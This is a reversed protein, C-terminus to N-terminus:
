VKWGGREHDVGIQQQDLVSPRVGTMGAVVSDSSLRAHGPVGHYFTDVDEKVRPEDGHLVASVKVMVPHFPLAVVEVRDQWRPLCHVDEMLPLKELELQIRLAPTNALSFLLVVAEM